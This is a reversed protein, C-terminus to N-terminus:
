RAQKEKQDIADVGLGSALQIVRQRVTDPVNDGGRAIQAFLQAAEARQGKKLRAVGVMEGANGFWPSDPTALPGLRAIVDDPKLTDFEASTQRLLALDRYPKPFKTDTAVSAFKAVAGKSDKKQLLLNGETLRSLAAFGNDGSAALKDLAPMAKAPGGEDIARLAADFDEGRQGAISDARHGLYLFLALGLLAAVVAGIIWRGYKQWISLMQDRRYEEDVERLFAEDTTGSPPLAM